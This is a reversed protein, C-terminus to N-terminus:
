RSKKPRESRCVLRFHAARSSAQVPSIVVLKEWGSYTRGLTWTTTVVDVGTGGLTVFSNNTDTAGDSREWKYKLSGTGTSYITATFTIVAPCSSPNYLSDVRIDIRRVTQSSSTINMCLLFAMFFLLSKYM